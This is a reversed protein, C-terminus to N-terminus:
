KIKLQILIIKTFVFFSKKKEQYKTPIKKKLTQNTLCFKTFIFSVIVINPIVNKKDSKTLFGSVIIIIIILAIIPTEYFNLRFHFSIDKGLLFL